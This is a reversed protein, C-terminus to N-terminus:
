STRMTRRTSGRFLVPEILLGKSEHAATLAAARLQIAHKGIDATRRKETYGGFVHWTCWVASMEIM